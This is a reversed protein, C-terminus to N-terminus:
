FVGVAAYFKARDFDPNVKKFYDALSLTIGRVRLVEAETTSCAMDGALIEAIAEFHQKTM